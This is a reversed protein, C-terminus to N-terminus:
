VANFEQPEFASVANIVNVGRALGTAEVPVVFKQKPEVVVSTFVTDPPVQDVLLM